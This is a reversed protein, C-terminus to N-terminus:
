EWHYDTEIPYNKKCINQLNLKNYSKQGKTQKKKNRSIASCMRAFHEFM